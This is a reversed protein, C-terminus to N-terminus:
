PTPPTKRPARDLHSAVLWGALKAANNRYKLRVIKGRLRSWNMIKRFSAILGGTGEAHKEEASDHVLAAQQFADRATPLNDYAENSLGAAILQTKIAAGNANFATAKAILNQDTRPRPMKYAQETGEIDHDVIAAALVWEELYDVLVDRRNEYIEQAQRKEDFGSTQQADFALIIAKETNIFGTLEQAKAHTAFDAANDIFYVEERDVKDMKRRFDDKM